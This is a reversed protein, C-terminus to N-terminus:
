SAEVFRTPNSIQFARCSKGYKEQVQSKPLERLDDNDLLQQYIKRIADSAGRRDNKFVPYIRLTQLLLNFPFVRDRQMDENVKYQGKTAKGKALQAIKHIMVDTQKEENAPANVAGGGIEGADFRAQLAKTQWYIEDTALKAQEATVCPFVHDCGVAYLAALRLAKLHARNWLESVVSNPKTPLKQNTEPDRNNILATTWKEFDDFIRKAEPTMGVNNVMDTAAARQAHAVLCIIAETLPIPPFTEAHRESLDLRDGQYEILLFRPLLGDTVVDENINEFFKEPTSEGILTFSPSHVVATNEERKSYAMAGMVAGYASKHYLDLLARKIGTIHPPAHEASMEKLKLGFEGVISFVCPNRALWKTLAQPSAIEVPGVFERVTPCTAAVSTVIKSIGAAIAEKGRGTKAILLVYQNLGTGSINYSRGCIGAMFGIAGALAIERVPRPSADYIFQAIEGLLGRPFVCKTSPAPSRELPLEDAEGHRTPTANVPAAITKSPHTAAGGKATMMKEFEINLGDVDIPPLQRDFSKEVMYNVYAARDGRHAYNDKPQQGLVSQRFIRAIQKKNQTYYAIIDVLAFDAESQSPYDGRWDGNFLAKFKEGNVAAGARALIIEDTEKETQDEGYKHTVAPGGMESYLLEALEQREAIPAAHQANGTMTFYRGADYIEVCARRRGTGPLKAKAIIHLGRGSPSLESYSDFTHFIKLQRAFAEADGHTDDLDIGCYPDDNTFVFGIGSYAEAFSVAEDFSCWDKPNTVSALQGTLPNFPLKTPKAGDREVLRWTVFQRYDRLEPPISAFSM